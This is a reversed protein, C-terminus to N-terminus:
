FRDLLASLPPTHLTCVCTKCRELKYRRVDRRVSRFIEGDVLDLVKEKRINGYSPLFFCPQIDGTSSIVASVMPANCYNRPFEAKGILAEFYQVIHFMKEPSDSIFGSAFEGGSCETTMREILHRFELTEEETLMLSENSTISGRTARGFSDSLVDAALFSIRDVRLSRAFQVMAITQRFNKKQIVTRISLSPRPSSGIWREIGKVIQDLSELGRITNHTEANAGDISVIIESFFGRIEDFRKELLLGNTLLTQNVSRDKFVQCIQPFDRRMLPEGGSYVITRLGYAVLSDALSRIEDLSVENPLKERYSCTICRLNCGETVYLIVIPLTFSRSSITNLFANFNM